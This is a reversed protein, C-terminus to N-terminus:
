AEYTRTGATVRWAGRIAVILIIGNILGSGLNAALRLFPAAVGVLALFLAPTHEGGSRMADFVIELVTAFCIAFYTIVAATIQYKRGGLDDSATMMAKGVMFGVLLGVYGIHVFMGVLGYILAGVAAAGLGFVISKVFVAHDVSERPADPTINYESPQVYEARDFNPLNTGM